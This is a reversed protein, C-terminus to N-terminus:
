HCEWAWCVSITVSGWVLRWEAKSLCWGLAVVEDHHRLSGGQPWPNVYCDKMWDCAKWLGSVQDGCWCPFPAELPWSSPCNVPRQYQARSDLPLVKQLSSNGLAQRVPEWIVNPGSTIIPAQSPQKGAHSLLMRRHPSVSHREQLPCPSLFGWAFDARVLCAMSLEGFRQLPLEQCWCATSSALCQFAASRSLADRKRELWVVSTHSKAVFSLIPELHPTLLRGPAFNLFHSIVFGEQWYKEEAFFLNFHSIKLERSNERLDENRHFSIQLVLNFTQWHSEFNMLHLIRIHHPQKLHLLKSSMTLRAHLILVLYISLLLHKRCPM